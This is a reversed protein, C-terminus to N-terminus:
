KRRRAKVLRPPPLGGPHERSVGVVIQHRRFQRSLCEAFFLVLSSLALYPWLPTSVVSPRRGLRFVEEARDILGGGTLGVVEKLRPLNLGLTRHESAYPLILSGLESHITEEGRQEIVGLLYAGEGKLPFAGEYRGPAVQALDVVYRSKDPAIVGARAELFNLFEGQPSVAEVTIVGRDGRRDFEANLEQRQGRRLTWRILQSFLQPFGEWKLWLVGWRGKADSTFVASRGIGYRWVSLLPDGQPSTLLLEATPKPTTAVYGGLPPTTRWDIQQLVEHLPATVVPLFPEEVAAAKSALQAELAFIRPLSQADDSYYYRGKGWRSIDRLLRTDADRGIAVTSVTIRDRAMRRTLSAFAGTASQGDSLLILHKLRADRQFLRQYAKKLAPFIDTGGGSRISAIEFRIRDKDAVPQIPAVWTSETDFALVGVESRDDLLEVVLQAAEKALELKTFRGAGTDMSGSRDIVLVVALSPVEMRQRTEMTVPLSEEVPTQYYGGLGFSEEGGLMILGGGHDRVFRRMVEMQDRTLHLASVDSLVVTDYELLRSLDRPIADPAALDVEIQQARLIKLLHSAQNEDKDAYLVRPQGRVAVVGLARNNTELVDGAVDVVAQYVHFGAQRLMQRYVFANKGQSLRVTQAGLFEGNKFLTIRGASEAASWVVVRLLFSEGEKVERPLRLRELLVEGTRWAGVAHAYVEVGRERAAFVEQLERGGGAHGDSLLIIRSQGEAPLTALAAGLAGTMESRGREMPLDSPETFDPNPSPLVDVRSRAAFSILGATDRTGKSELAQQMFQWARTQESAPISESRDWLFLVNLRDAAGSFAPKTLAWAIALLTVGRLVVFTLGREGRQYALLFEIALVALALSLLLRWGEWTAEFGADGALVERPRRPARPTLDSEADDLLNFAVQRRWDGDWVEYVGAQRLIPLYASGNQVPVPREQGDPRRLMVREVRPDLGVSLPFGVSGQLGLDEIRTPYLWRVANSIFLPFAARLPLDSKLPDLGLFVLRYGREQFALALPTLQSDILTHAGALPRVKLASEIVVNALDLYRMVPHTRDWDVIRPARVTGFVEIPANGPVSRILLYRGSPISNPSYNDLVVLDHDRRAQPFDEPDVVTLDIQPDVSLAKELFLNGESVMLVKLQQPPPIIVYARNDVELDDSVDLRAEVVGGRWHLIPVVLGRRTKAPLVVQETHLLDGELSLALAFRITERASNVLGVFLEYRSPSYYTKRIRFSTIGVNRSRVGVRHSTLVQNEAPSWALREFAGDTFLHVELSSAGVVTSLLELAERITARGDQPSLHLLAQRARERDATFPQHIVPRVGAEMVLVERGPELRNLFAMAEARAVDFRSPHVDSAQMSASTDVVLAVRKVGTEWWHLEPRALGFVLLLLFLIQLLLVLDVPLHRLFARSPRPPSGPEWLLLSPVVQRRQPRRVSRLLLLLPITLLLLLAAPNAFTM